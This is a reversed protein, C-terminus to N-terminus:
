EQTDLLLLAKKAELKIQDDKKRLEERRKKEDLSTDSYIESRERARGSLLESYTSLVAHKKLESKHENYFARKDEPEQALYDQYVPDYEKLKSYFKRASKSGFGNSKRQALGFFEMAGQPKGVDSPLDNLNRYITDLVDIATRGTGGAAESALWELQQPSQLTTKSGTIIKTLDEALPQETVPRMVDTLAGVAPSTYDTRQLEPSKDELRPSVIPANDRFADTNSGLQDRTSLADIPIEGSTIIDAPSQKATQEMLEEAEDSKLFSKIFEKTSVPDTDYAHQLALETGYGFIVGPLFPKPITVWGDETKAIYWFMARKWGPEEQFDPDDKWKNWFYASPMIVGTTIRLNTTFPREAFSTALKYPDQLMANTFARVRNLHRMTQAGIKHFDLTGERIAKLTSWYDFDRNKYEDFAKKGRSFSPKIKLARETLTGEGDSWFSSMFRDAGVTYDNLLKLAKSATYRPDYWKAGKAERMLRLRNFHGVRSAQESTQAFIRLGEFGATVPAMASHAVGKAVGKVGGEKFASVAKGVRKATNTQVMRKGLVLSDYGYQKMLDFNVDLTAQTAHGGGSRMFSELIDDRKMIHFLGMLMDHPLGGEETFLFQSQPDRMLNKLAFKPTGTAGLRLFHAYGAALKWFGDMEDPTMGAVSDLLDPDVRWYEVKGGEMFRISDSPQIGGPLSNVREMHLDDMTDLYNLLSSEQPTIGPIPEGVQKSLNLRKMINVIKNAAGQREAFATANYSRNIMEEIPSKYVSDSDFGTKKKQLGLEEAGKQRRGLLQKDLQAKARSGAKESKKYPDGWADMLLRMPTHHSNRKLVHDKVADSLFGVKHAPDLVTRQEWATLRKAKDELIPFTAGHKVKLDQIFQKNKQVESPRLSITLRRRQEKLIELTKDIKERTAKDQIDPLFSDLTAKLRDMRRVDEANDKLNTVVRRAIIYADLDNYMDRPLPTEKIFEARGNVGVHWRGTFINELSEGTAVMEGEFPMRGGYWRENIRVSIPDMPLKDGKGMRTYTAQSIPVNQISGMDRMYRMTGYVSEDGIMRGIEGTAYDIDFTFKLARGIPGLIRDKIGLNEDGRELTEGIFRKVDFEAAQRTKIVTVIDEFPLDIKSRQAAGYGIEVAKRLNEDTAPEVGNRLAIMFKLEDDALDELLNNPKVHRLLERTAPNLQAKRKLEKLVHGGAEEVAGDGFLRAEPSPLTQPYPAGMINRYSIAKKTALVGVRDGVRAGEQIGRGLVDDMWGFINTYNKVASIGKRANKAVAGAPIAVDAFEGSGHMWRHTVDYEESAGEKAKDGLYKSAETLGPIYKVEYPDKMTELEPTPGIKHSGAAKLVTSGVNAGLNQLDAYTQPINAMGSAFSLAGRRPGVGHDTRETAERLRSDMDNWVGPSIREPDIQEAPVAGGAETNARQQEFYQRKLLDYSEGKSLYFERLEDESYGKSLNRGFADLNPQM